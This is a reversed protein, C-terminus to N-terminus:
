RKRITQPDEKFKDFVTDNSWSLLPETIETQRSSNLEVQDDKESEHACKQEKHYEFFVFMAKSVNLAM